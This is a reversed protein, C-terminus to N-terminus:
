DSEKRLEENVGRRRKGRMKERELLRKRRSSKEEEKKKGIAHEKSKRTLLGWKGGKEWWQDREREELIEIIGINKKEGGTQVHYRCLGALGTEPLVSVSELRPIGKSKKKGGNGRGEKSRKGEL